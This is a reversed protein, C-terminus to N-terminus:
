HLRVVVQEGNGTYGLYDFTRGTREVFETLARYEHHQWGPYNFFEDFLLIAGPPLRDATLDLVTKTSSYLDADLHLFAIPGDHEALFGPLIDEFLGKVVLAGPVDPPEQAFEGAEFGTRWTEPLGTFVDFGAVLRDDALTEAIITLTIGSAVGFELAMGPETIEALAFRLTDHHHWFVPAKPMHELVFDAAERTVRLDQAYWIDRRARFELEDQRRLVEKLGQELQDARTDFRETLDDLRRNLLDLADLLETHLQRSRQDIRDDQEEVVETVARKVKDRAAVKFRELMAM